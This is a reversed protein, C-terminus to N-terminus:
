LILKALDHHHRHNHHYHSMTELYSNTQSFKNVNKIVRTSIRDALKNGKSSLRLDYSIFFFNFNDRHKLQAGRWSPM